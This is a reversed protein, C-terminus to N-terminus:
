LRGKAHDKAFEEPGTTAHHVVEDCTECYVRFRMRSSYFGTMPAGNKDVAMTSVLTHGNLTQRETPNDSQFISDDM